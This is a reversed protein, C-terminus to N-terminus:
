LDDDIPECRGDETLVTNLSCISTKSSIAMVSSTCNIEDSGDSCDLTKDCWMRKNICELQNACAFESSELCRVPATMTTTTTIVCEPALEDSNDGCDNSQDCM